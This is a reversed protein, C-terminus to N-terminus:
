AEEEAPLAIKQAAEILAIAPWHLPYNAYRSHEMWLIGLARREARRWGDAYARDVAELFDPVDGAMM